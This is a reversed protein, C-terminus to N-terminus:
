IIYHTTIIVNLINLIRIQRPRLQQGWIERSDGIILTSSDEAKMLVKHGACVAVEESSLCISAMIKQGLWELPLM